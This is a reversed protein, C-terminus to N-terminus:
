LEIWDFRLVGQDTTQPDGGKWDRAWTTVEGDLSIQNFCIIPKSHVERSLGIRGMRKRLARDTGGYSGVLDEDHGGSEWFKEKNVLTTGPSVKNRDAGWWMQDQFQYYHTPDVPENFVELPIIRDIDAFLIWEGNAVRAGVNRAGGVNWAMNQHIRIVRAYPLKETIPYKRSGDDVVIYEVGDPVGRHELHDMQIQLMQPAEYYPIIVSFRM